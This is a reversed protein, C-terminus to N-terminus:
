VNTINQKSKFCEISYAIFELYNCFNPRLMHLQNQYMLVVIVQPMNKKFQAM